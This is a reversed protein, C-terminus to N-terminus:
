IGISYLFIKEIVDLGVDTLKSLIKKIVKKDKRGNLEKVLDEVCKRSEPSCSSIDLKINQSQNINVNNINSSQATTNGKEKREMTFGWDNLEDLISEIFVLADSLGSRRYEARRSEVSYDSEGLVYFGPSFSIQKARMLYSEGMRNCCSLISNWWRKLADPNNVVDITQADRLKKKFFKILNETNLEM